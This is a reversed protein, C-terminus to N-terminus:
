LGLYITSAVPVLPRYLRNLSVISKPFAARALVALLHYQVTNELDLSKLNDM